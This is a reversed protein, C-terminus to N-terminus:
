KKTAPAGLMQEHLSHLRAADWGPEDLHEEIWKCGDGLKRAASTPVTPRGLLVFTNVFIQITAGPLGGLLIMHMRCRQFLSADSTLDAAAKRVDSSFRPTGGVVVNSLGCGGPQRAEFARGHALMANMQTMTPADSWKALFLAGCTHFSVISDRYIEDLADM